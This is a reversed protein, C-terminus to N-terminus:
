TVLLLNQSVTFLVIIILKKENDFLLHDYKNLTSVINVALNIDEAFIPEHTPTTINVLAIAINSAQIIRETATLENISSSLNIAQFIIAITMRCYLKSPMVQNFLMRTEERFCEFLEVWLDDMICRRSITGTVCLSLM